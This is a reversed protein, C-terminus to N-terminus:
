HQYVARYFKQRVSPAVPDAFTWATGSLTNTAVPAWTILDTSAEIVYTRGPQGSLTAQFARPVLMAPSSLQPQPVPVLGGWAIILSWGGAINGDDMPADDIVYLSWPGNADAGTFGSLATM